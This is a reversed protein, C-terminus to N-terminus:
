QPANSVVVTLTAVMKRTSSKTMAGCTATLKFSGLTLQDTM